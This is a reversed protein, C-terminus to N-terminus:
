VGVVEGISEERARCVAEPMRKGAYEEGRRVESWAADETQRGLIRTNCKPM